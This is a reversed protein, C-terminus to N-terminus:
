EWLPLPLSKGGGSGRSSLVTAWGDEPCLRGAQGSADRVLM